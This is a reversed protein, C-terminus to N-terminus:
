RTPDADAALLGAIRLSRLRGLAAAIEYRRPVVFDGARSGGLAATGHDGLETQLADLADSLSREGDLYRADSLRALALGIGTVQGPDVIQELGRVDIEDAGFVLRDVGRRAIKRRGARAAVVPRPVRRAPPHFPASDAPGALEAARASVDHCRYEDLMLVRDAVTFYDGCGGMVLVTSVGHAAMSEALRVLPTLPEKAQPVLARMRPDCFMLNTAATDEDILLLRGGAEYAECIAAAQSTSGSADPTSFDDTRAGGPLPGVFSSIDVRQVARGEEARIKVADGRTVVLERGDGPVHDYIGAQLARLLTSKGHFAGGVILTMGTRLGMGTVPGRHPLTLTTRLSAPSTFPVAGDRLPRQDAGSARPLVAGDAVFAVLDHETLLRRAAATDEVSDLYALVAPTDQSPWRLAGNVAQPLRDILLRRAAHGDIRRGHAPMRLGVRAVVRGGRVECASRDLVVQGGADVEFGTGALARRLGRAFWDALARARPAPRWQDTPIAACAADLTITLRSPPAFPDAQVRDIDLTFGDFRWRGRLARYRGYGAGHMERLMDDLGGAPEGAVDSETPAKSM